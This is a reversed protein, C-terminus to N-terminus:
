SGRVENKLRGIQPSYVEVEDKNTLWSPPKHGWGVGAPTGTSIIDGPLLPTIHSLYSILFSLPFILSSLGDSQRQEGNIFTTLSLKQPDGIIASPVIGPGMAGSRFFNKGAFLSHLQHDRASGDMVLTYGGIHDMANAESVMDAKQAIIVGIEGEYDYESSIKPKQLPQNHGTLSAHTRMFVSPNEPTAHKIENAHSRYNRGICFIRSGEILPPLFQSDDKLDRANDAAFNKNNNLSNLVDLFSNPHERLVYIKEHSLIGLKKRGDELIFCLSFNQSFPSPM